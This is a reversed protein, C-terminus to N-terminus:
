LEMTIHCHLSSLRHSGAGLEGERGKTRLKKRCWSPCIHAGGVLMGVACRCRLLCWGRQQRAPSPSHLRELHVCRLPCQMARSMSGPIDLCSIELEWSRCYPGSTPCKEKTRCVRQGMPFSMAWVTGRKGRQSPQQEHTSWLAPSHTSSLVPSPHILLSGTNTM